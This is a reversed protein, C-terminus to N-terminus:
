PIGRRADGRGLKELKKAAIDGDVDELKQKRVDERSLVDLLDSQVESQM